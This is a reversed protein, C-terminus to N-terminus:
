IKAAAKLDERTLEDDPKAKLSLRGIRMLREIMEEDGFHANHEFDPQEGFAIRAADVLIRATMGFVRFRTVASVGDDSPRDRYPLTHSPAPRAPKNSATPLPQDPGRGLEKEPRAARRKQGADEIAEPARKKKKPRPRIVSQGAVPVYFNHMRWRSEQWDSWSGQYWGSSVDDVASGVDGWLQEDLKSRLFNHFPATFVAAVEKADLRPILSDEVAPVASGTPQRDTPASPSSPAASDSAGPPSTTLFAVCPRVGLETRALYTPLQCLHEVRFPPPLKNNSLPLGIEEFAERRATQLPTETLVDAKGGPLAAQGAYSSLTSARITLVVKLHGAKDAFLLLLVAARRTLPLNTYQTPPPVYSRLRAIAQASLPTLTAM